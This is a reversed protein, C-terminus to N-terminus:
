LFEFLTILLLNDVGLCRILTLEIGFLILIHVLATYLFPLYVLDLELQHIVLLRSVPLGVKLLHDAVQFFLLLFHVPVMVLVHPLLLLVEVLLLASHLADIAGFDIFLAFISVFLRLFLNSLDLRM